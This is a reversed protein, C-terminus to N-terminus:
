VELPLVEATEVHDLINLAVFIPFLDILVSFYPFAKNQPHSECKLCNHTTFKKYFFHFFINNKMINNWKRDYGLKLYLFVGKFLEELFFKM